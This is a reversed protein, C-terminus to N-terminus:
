LSRRIMDALIFVRMDNRCSLDGYKLGMCCKKCMKKKALRLWRKLTKESNNEIKKIVSMQYFKTQLAIREPTLGSAMLEVNGRKHFKRITLIESVTKERKSEIYVQNM